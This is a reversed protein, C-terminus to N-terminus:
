TARYRRGLDSSHVKGFATGQLPLNKAGETGQRTSNTQGHGGALTKQQISQEVEALLTAQTAEM